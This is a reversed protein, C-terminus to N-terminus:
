KVALNDACNALRKAIALTIAKELTGRPGHAGPDKGGHGPDIVIHLGTHPKTAAAPKSKARTNKVGASAIPLPAKGSSDSPIPLLNASVKASDKKHNTLQKLLLKAPGVMDGDRHWRTIQVLLGRAKSLDHFGIWSIVAARYLADDALHNKRYRRAFDLYRHRAIRLDRHNKSAQFLQEYIKATSYLADPARQSRPHLKPIQRFQKICKEWQDRRQLKLQDGLLQYYCARSQQYLEEIHSKPDPASLVSQTIVPLIMLTM